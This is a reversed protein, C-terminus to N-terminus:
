TKLNVTFRSKQSIFMVVASVYRAMVEIMSRWNEVEEYEREEVKKGMEEAVVVEMEVVVEMVMGVVESM